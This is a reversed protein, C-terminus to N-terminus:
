NDFSLFLSATDEVQVKVTIAGSDDKNTASSIPLEVELDSGTNVTVTPLAKTLTPPTNVEVLQLINLNVPM